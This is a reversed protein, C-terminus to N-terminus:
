CCRTGAGPPGADESAAPSSCAGTEYQDITCDCGSTKIGLMSNIVAVACGVGTRVYLAKEPCNRACAGCEMCSDRDVISAKRGSIEFIGHPCVIRCMGCGSCKEPDIGLTVVDKLYVLKGV